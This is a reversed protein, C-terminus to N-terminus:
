PLMSWYSLHRVRFRWEADITPQLSYMEKLEVYNRAAVALPIAIISSSYPVASASAVSRDCSEPFCSVIEPSCWVSEPFCLVRCALAQTDARQCSHAFAVRTTPQHVQTYTNTIVFCLRSARIPNRTSPCHHPAGAAILFIYLVGGFEVLPFTM